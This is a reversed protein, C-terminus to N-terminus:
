PETGLDFRVGAPLGVEGGPVLRNDAAELGGHAGSLPHRAPRLYSAWVPAEAEVPPAVALTLRWGM